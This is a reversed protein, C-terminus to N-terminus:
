ATVQSRSRQVWSRWFGVWNTTRRYSINTCTKTSIRWHLPEPAIANVANTRGDSASETLYPLTLYVHIQIAGQRSFVELASLYPV